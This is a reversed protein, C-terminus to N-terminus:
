QAAPSSGEGEGGFIAIHIRINQPYLVQIQIIWSPTHSYKSHKWQSKYVSEYHTIYNVCEGPVYMYSKSWNLIWQLLLCYFQLLTGSNNASAITYISHLLAKKQKLCIIGSFNFNIFEYSTPYWFCGEKVSIPTLKYKIRLM